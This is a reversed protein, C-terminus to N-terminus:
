CDDHEEEEDIFYKTNRKMLKKFSTIGINKM